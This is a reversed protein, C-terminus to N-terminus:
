ISSRVLYAIRVQADGGPDERAQAALEILEDITM